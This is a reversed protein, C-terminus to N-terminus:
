IYIDKKVVFATVDLSRTREEFYLHLSIVYVWLFVYSFVYKHVFRKIIM